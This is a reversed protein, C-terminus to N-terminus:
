ASEAEEEEAFLEYDDAMHQAIDYWDVESLFSRAYDYALGKGGTEDYLLDDMYDKLCRSLDYVNDVRPFERPTMGDFVELYVRWTAYNIWGNYTNDQM